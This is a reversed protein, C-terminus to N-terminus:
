LPHIVPGPHVPGPLVPGPTPPFPPYPLAVPPYPLVTVPYPWPRTLIMNDIYGSVEDALAQELAQQQDAPVRAAELEAPAIVYYNGERDRLILAQNETSM